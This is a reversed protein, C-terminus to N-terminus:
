DRHEHSEEESAEDAEEEAESFDEYSSEEKDEAEGKPPYANDLWDEFQKKGEANSFAWECLEKVVSSLDLQHDVAMQELFKEFQEPLSVVHTVM